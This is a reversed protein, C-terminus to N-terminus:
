SKSHGLQLSVQAPPQSQYNSDCDVGKQNM